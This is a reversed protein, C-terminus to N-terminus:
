AAMADVIAPRSHREVYNSAEIAPIMVRGGIRTAGLQRAKILNRVLGTSVAWERALQQITKFKANSASADFSMKNKEMEPLIFFAHRTFQARGKPLHQL